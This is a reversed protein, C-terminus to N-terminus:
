ASKEEVICDECVDIPADDERYPACEECFVKGCEDCVHLDSEAISTDCFNCTVGANEPGDGITTM